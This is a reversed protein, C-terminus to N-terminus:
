SPPPPADCRAFLEPIDVNHPTSACSVRLRNMLAREAGSMNNPGIATALGFDGRLPHDIHAAVADGRLPAQVKMGTGSSGALNSGGSSGDLLPAPAGTNVHSTMLTFPLILLWTLTAAVQSTHDSTLANTHPSLLVHAGGLV